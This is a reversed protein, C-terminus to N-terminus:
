KNLKKFLLHQLWGISEAASNFYDKNEKKLRENELSLRLNEIELESIYGESGNYYELM